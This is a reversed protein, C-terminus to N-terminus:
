VFCRQVAILPLIMCSCRSPTCTAYFVLSGAKLCLVVVVMMMIMMIMMMVYLLYDSSLHFHNGVPTRDSFQSSRHVLRQLDITGRQMDDAGSWDGLGPQM